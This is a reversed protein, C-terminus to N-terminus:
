GDRPRPSWRAAQHVSLRPLVSSRWGLLVLGPGWVPKPVAFLAALVRQGPGHFCRSRGLTLLLIPM